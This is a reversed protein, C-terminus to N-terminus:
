KHKEATASPKFLGIQPRPLKAESFVRIAHERWFPWANHVMNHQIFEQIVEDALEHEMQYLVAFTARLEALTEPEDDNSSTEASVFRLGFSVFGRLYHQVSGDTESEKQLLDGSVTLKSQQRMAESPHHLDFNKERQLHSDNLYLDLLEMAKIAQQLPQENM